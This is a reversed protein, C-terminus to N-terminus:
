RGQSVVGADILEQETWRHGHRCHWEDADPEYYLPEGCGRRHRSQPDEAEVTEEAPCRLPRPTEDLM